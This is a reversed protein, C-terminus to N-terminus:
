RTKGPVCTAANASFPTVADAVGAGIVGGALAKGFDRRKM